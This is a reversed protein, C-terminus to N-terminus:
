IRPTFSLDFIAALIVQVDVSNGRSSGSDLADALEAMAALRENYDLPKNKPFCDALIVEVSGPTFNQFLECFISKLGFDALPRGEDIEIGIPAARTAHHGGNKLFDSLFHLTGHGNALEIDVM